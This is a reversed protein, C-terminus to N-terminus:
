SGSLMKSQEVHMKTVAEKYTTATIWFAGYSSVVWSGEYRVLKFYPFKKRREVRPAVKDISAAM